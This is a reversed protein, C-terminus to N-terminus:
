ILLELTLTMSVETLAVGKRPELGVSKGMEPNQLEWSHGDKKVTLQVFHLHELGSAFGLGQFNFFFKLINDCEKYVM